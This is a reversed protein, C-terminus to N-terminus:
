FISCFITNIKTQKAFACWPYLCRKLWLSRGSLIQRLVTRPAKFTVTRSYVVIQTIITFSNPLKELIQLPRLPSASIRLVEGITSHDSLHCVFWLRPQQAVDSSRLSDVGQLSDVILVRNAIFEFALSQHSGIAQNERPLSHNEGPSRPSLLRKLGIRTSKTTPHTLLSSTSTIM